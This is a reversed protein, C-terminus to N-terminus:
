AQAAHSAAAKIERALALDNMEPVGLDIIAM